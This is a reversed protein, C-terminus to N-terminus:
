NQNETHNRLPHAIGVLLKISGGTETPLLVQDLQETDTMMNRYIIKGLTNTLINPINDLYAKFYTMYAIQNRATEM